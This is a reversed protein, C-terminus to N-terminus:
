IQVIAELTFGQKPSSIYKIKGGLVKIREKM